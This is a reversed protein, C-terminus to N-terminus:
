KLTVMGLIIYSHQSRSFKRLGGIFSKVSFQKYFTKSKGKYFPEVVVLRYYSVLKMRAFHKKLMRPDKAVQLWRYLYFFQLILKTFSISYSNGCHSVLLSVIHLMAVIKLIKNLIFYRETYHAIHDVRFSSKM